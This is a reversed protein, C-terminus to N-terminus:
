LGDTDGNGAKSKEENALAEYAADLYDNGKLWGYTIRIKDSNSDTKLAVMADNSGGWLTYKDSAYAYHQIMGQEDAAGYLSTLKETLDEYVGSIDKVKLVYEAEYFVTHEKDQQLIGSDDSTYVFWIRILDVPYGAVSIDTKSYTYGRVYDTYAINRTDILDDKVPSAYDSDFLFWRNAPIQEVVKDYPLGWEIDRFYIQAKEETQNSGNKKEALGNEEIYSKMWTLEDVSYRSLDAKASDSFKFFVNYDIGADIVSVATEIDHLLFGCQRNSLSDLMEETIVPNPIPEEEPIKLDIYEKIAKLEEESLDTLSVYEDGVYGSVSYSDLKLVGCKYAIASKVQIRWIDLEDDLLTDLLSLDFLGTSEAMVILPALSLMLGVMLVLMLKKM